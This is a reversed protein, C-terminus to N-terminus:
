RFIKLHLLCRFHDSYVCDKKSLPRVPSFRKKCDIELSKFYSLLNRSVIVLDLCSMKERDDPHPPDFRTFPGGVTRPHNNLCVFEKTELLTRILEGGSSIKEHNDKVGYEDNGIHKNMDGILICAEHRNEIKVVEEMIRLWRSEVEKKNERCEQEGYINIINIPTVFNAHRTILYEDNESGEKIQVVSDKDENRVLTAVGGMIKGNKRNRFFPKYNSIIPSQKKRLCTENLTLVSPKLTGIIANLSDKKSNFGRINQHFISFKNDNNDFGVNKGKKRRKGRRIKAKKKKIVSNLSAM